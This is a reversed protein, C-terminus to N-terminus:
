RGLLALPINILVQAALSASRFYGYLLFAILIFVMTSYLAIKRSAEQQSKYEGEFSIYYGQPLTVKEKM